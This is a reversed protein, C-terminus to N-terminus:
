EGFGRLGAGFTVPESAVTAFSFGRTAVRKVMKRGDPLTVTATQGKVVVLCGVQKRPHARKGYWDIWEVVQNEHTVSMSAKRGQKWEALARVAGPNPEYMENPVVGFIAHVQAPDFFETKNFNKSTHHWSEPKCFQRVLAAPVRGVKSAPVLGRAYTERARNSMSSGDYGTM